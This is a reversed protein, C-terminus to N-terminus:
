HIIVLNYVVVFVVIMLIKYVFGGIKNLVESKCVCRKELKGVTTILITLLVLLDNNNNNIEHDYGSWYGLTPPVM